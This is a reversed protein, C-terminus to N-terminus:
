GRVVCWSVARHPWPAARDLAGQPLVAPVVGPQLLTAAYRADDCNVVASLASLAELQDREGVQGAALGGRLRQVALPVMLQVDRPTVGGTTFM